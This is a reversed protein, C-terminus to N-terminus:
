FGTIKREGIKLSAQGAVSYGVRTLDSAKRNDTM